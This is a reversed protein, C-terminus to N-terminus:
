NLIRDMINGLMKRSVWAEGRGVVQIAKSLHLQMTEYKLYGRAGIELIQLIQNEHIADDVLSVILAEPCEHHLSLLLAYDEDTCLNLNVLLVLPKLRRIRAVEDECASIDTRLKLRRNVFAANNGAHNGSSVNTLLAIGLKGQILREYGARRERDTDVIAVTVPQM